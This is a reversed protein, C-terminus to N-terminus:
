DGARLWRRWELLKERTAQRSPIAKAKRLHTIMPRFRDTREYGKYGARKCLLHKTFIEMDNHITPLSVKLKEALEAGTITKRKLLLTIIGLIRVPRPCSCIAQTPLMLKGFDNRAQQCDTETSFTMKKGKRTSYKQIFSIKLKRLIIIKM